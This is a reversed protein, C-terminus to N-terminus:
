EQAYVLGGIRKRVLLGGKLYSSTIRTPEEGAVFIGKCSVIKEFVKPRALFQPISIDKYQREQNM